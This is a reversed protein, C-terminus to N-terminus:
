IKRSSFIHPSRFGVLICTNQFQRPIMNLPTVCPQLFQALCLPVFELDFSLVICCNWIHRPTEQTGAVGPQMTTLITSRAWRGGRCRAGWRGRGSPGSPSARCVEESALPPPQAPDFWAEESWVGGERDGRAGELSGGPGKVKEQFQFPTCTGSASCIHINGGQDFHIRVSVIHDIWHDLFAARYWDHYISSWIQYAPTSTLVLKPLSLISLTFSIEWHWMIGLFTYAVISRYDTVSRDFM